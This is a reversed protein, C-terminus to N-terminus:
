YLEAPHFNGFLDKNRGRGSRLWGELMEKLKRLQKLGGPSAPDSGAQDVEAKVVPLQLLDSFVENPILSELNATSVVPTLSEPVKNNKMESGNLKQRKRNM